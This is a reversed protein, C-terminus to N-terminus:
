TSREAQTTKQYLYGRSSSRTNYFVELNRVQKRIDFSDISASKDRYKAQTKKIAHAWIGLANEKIPLFQVLPTLRCEEPITDSVLCPLGSAQAEVLTLPLGEHISPFVFVDFASMYKYVESQGGTLIVHEELGLKKIHANVAKLRSEGEGVLMLKVDCGEQILLSLVKIIYIHNKSKNFRGVHGLLLSEGVNYQKRIENRHVKRYKFEDIAIANPIVRFTGKKGFLWRGAEEGCAFNHTSYQHLISKCYLFVPIKYDLSYSSNHSHAVRTAVGHKKAYKLAYVGLSNYHSHVIQYDSSHKSFFDDLWRIYMRHHLPNFKPARYIRGGLARIEKEYVGEDEGHVLFDFQINSRDINRYYNMIMTELGGRNMVAVVQLVRIM